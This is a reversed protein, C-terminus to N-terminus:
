QWFHSALRWREDDYRTTMSAGENIWLSDRNFMAQPQYGALTSALPYQRLARRGFKRTAELLYTQGDRLVVVWAHGNGNLEGLVVRADEGHSALWDALLLAHDECDGSGQLWSERATQWVDARGPYRQHDYRYRLKHATAFWPEWWRQTEYPIWDTLFGQVFFHGDVVHDASMAVLQGSASKWSYTYSRREPLMAAVSSRVREDTMSAGGAGQSSAAVIRGRRAESGFLERTSGAQQQLSQLVTDEERAPFMRVVQEPPWAPQPRQQQQQASQPEGFLLGALILCALIMAYLHDQM